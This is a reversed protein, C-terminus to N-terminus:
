KAGLEEARRRMFEATSIPREDEITSPKAKPKPVPQKEVVKYTISAQPKPKRLKRDRTVNGDDFTAMLAEAGLKARERQEPTREPKAFKEERRRELHRYAEWWERDGASEQLRQSLLRAAVKRLAAKDMDRIYDEMEDCLGPDPLACELSAELAESLQGVTLGEPAEALHQRLELLDTALAYPRGAGRMVRLANALMNSYAWCINAADFNEASQEAALRLKPPDDAM